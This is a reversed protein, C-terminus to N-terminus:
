MKQGRENIENLTDNIRFFVMVIELIFRFYIQGLIWGLVALPASTNLAGLAVLTIGIFGIIYLVMMLPPAILQKFELFAKLDFSM